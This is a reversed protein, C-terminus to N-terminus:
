EVIIARLEAFFDKTADLIEKAKQREAELAANHDDKIGMALSYSSGLEAILVNGQWISYNSDGRVDRVTWDHIM